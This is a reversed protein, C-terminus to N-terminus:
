LTRKIPFLMYLPTRAEIKHISIRVYAYYVYICHRIRNSKVFRRIMYPVDVFIFFVSVAVFFNLVAEAFIAFANSEMKGVAITSILLLSLEILCVM